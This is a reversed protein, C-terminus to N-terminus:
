VHGVDPVLGDLAKQRISTAARSPLVREHKSLAPPFALESSITFADSSLDGLHVREVTEVIAHSLAVGM